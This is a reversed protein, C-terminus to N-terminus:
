RKKKNYNFSYNTGNNADGSSFTQCVNGEAYKYGNSTYFYFGSTNYNNGSKNIKKTAMGMM